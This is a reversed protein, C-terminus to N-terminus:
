PQLVRMRFSGLPTVRQRLDAKRATGAQVATAAMAVAITWPARAAFRERVLTGNVRLELVTAAGCPM